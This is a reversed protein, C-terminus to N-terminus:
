EANSWQDNDGNGIDIANQTGKGRFDNLLSPDILNLNAYVYQFDFQPVAEKVDSKISRLGIHPRLFSDALPFWKLLIAPREGRKTAELIRKRQQMYTIRFIKIKKAVYAATLGHGMSAAIDEIAANRMPRSRYDSDNLDWLCRHVGYLRLFKVSHKLSWKGELLDDELPAKHISKETQETETETPFSQNTNSEMSFDDRFITSMLAENMNSMPAVSPLPNEFRKEYDEDADYDTEQDSSNANRSQNEDLYITEPKIEMPSEWLMSAESWWKYPPKYQPDKLIKEREEAVTHRLIHWRKEISRIPWQMEQAVLELAVNGSEMWMEKTNSCLIPHEKLLKIFQLSSELTWQKEQIVYKKELNNEEFKSIEENKMEPESQKEEKFMKLQQQLNEEVEELKPKLFEETAMGHGSEDHWHGQNSESDESIYELKPQCPLDTAEESNAKNELANTALLPGLTEPNITFVVNDELDTDSNHAEERRHGKKPVNRLFADALAFWKLKTKTGMGMKMRQKIRKKEYRYTARIINIKQVVQEKTIDGGMAAAIDVLAAHRMKRNHNDENRIDWLCRHSAYFRLLRIIESVPWKDNEAAADNPATEMVPQNMYHTHQFISDVSNSVWMVKGTQLLPTVAMLRSKKNTEYIGYVYM